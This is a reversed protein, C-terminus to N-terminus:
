DPVKKGVAGIFTLSGVRRGDAELLSAIKEVVGKLKFSGARRRDLELPDATFGSDIANGFDGGIDGRISISAQLTERIM